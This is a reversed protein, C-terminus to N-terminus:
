DDVPRCCCCCFSGCDRLSGLVGVATSRFNLEMSKLVGLLLSEGAVTAAARVDSVDPLLSRIPSLSFLLSNRGTVIDYGAEVVALLALM